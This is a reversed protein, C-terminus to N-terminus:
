PKTQGRCIKGSLTMSMASCSIFPKMFSQVADWFYFGKCGRSFLPKEGLACEPPYVAGSVPFTEVAEALVETLVVSSGKASRRSMRNYQEPMQMGPRGLKSPRQDIAPPMKQCWIGFYLNLTPGHFALKHVGASHDHKTCHRNQNERNREPLELLESHLFWESARVAVGLIHDLADLRCRRVLPM